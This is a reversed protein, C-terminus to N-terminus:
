CRKRRSCGPPLGQWMARESPDAGEEKIRMAEDAALEAEIVRPDVSRMARAFSDHFSASAQTVDQGRISKSGSGSANRNGM